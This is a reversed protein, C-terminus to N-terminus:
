RFKIVNDPLKEVMQIPSIAQHYWKLLEEKISSEPYEVLIMDTFLRTKKVTDSTLFMNILPHPYTTSILSVKNLNDQASMTNIRIPDELTRHTDFDYEAVKGIVVTSDKLIFLKIEM